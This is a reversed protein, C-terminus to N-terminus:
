LELAKHAVGARRRTPRAERRRDHRYGAARQAAEALSYLADFASYLRSVEIKSTDDDLRDRRRDQLGLLRGAPRRRLNPATRSLALALPARAGLLRGISRM